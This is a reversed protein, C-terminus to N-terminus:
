QKKSVKKSNKKENNEKKNKKAKKNEKKKSQKEKKSKKIKKTEKKKSAQKKDKEKKETEEEPLTIEHTVYESILDQELVQRSAEKLEVAQEYQKKYETIDVEELTHRNWAKSGEFIGERSIEFMMDDYAFSGDFLYATFAAFGHQASFLNQGVIYPQEIEIGLLYAMTPFFDVQCGLTSVTETKGSNPIHIFCPVKLMEEYGYEKGLYRGVYVDNDDMTWNLGHHDGYFALITDEYLGADKLEQILQGIAEDTYHIAQLYNSFKSGEDEPLIDLKQLEEPMEYPHHSTLSVGFVFFPNTEEKIVEVMQHFMSKDSVGLGLIDTSDMDEISYFNDIGQYPYAEERNWFVGENGHFGYTAYGQEKLKWPLGDYTNETYLRYSEGDIVPYLSNMSAFEADATNGKGIISYYNDFYITDEELLANINPTLVQNNYEANILFNQYAELQIVIVNKGKAIGELGPLGQKEDTEKTEPEEIKPVETEKKAEKVVNLVEETEWFDDYIADTAVEIIDKIHYSFFGVSNVKTILSTNWPNISFFLVIVVSCINAITRYKRKKNLQKTDENEEKKKGLHYYALPIDWIIFFSAPILTAIFSSPVKAVNSVQYVQQISVTQNYYNYYMTDAFMIISFFSYLVFFVIKKYKWNSERGHYLLMAMLIASGLVLINTLVNVEILYYYVVIKLVILALM